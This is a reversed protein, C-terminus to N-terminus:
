ASGINYEVEAERFGAKFGKHWVERYGLSNWDNSDMNHAILCVQEDTLRQQAPAPQAAPPTTYLVRVDDENWGRDTTFMWVEDQQKDHWAGDFYVQFIAVPEEWGRPAVPPTADGWAERAKQFNYDSTM